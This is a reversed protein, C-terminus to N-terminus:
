NVYIRVTPKAIIERFPTNVWAMRGFSNECRDRGFQRHNLAAAVKLVAARQLQAVVPM